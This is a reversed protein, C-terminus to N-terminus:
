NDDASDMNDILSIIQKFQYTKVMQTLKDTDFSEQMSGIMKLLEESNGKKANERFKVLWETSVEAFDSPIIATSDVKTEDRQKLDEYIYVIELYEAMKEFIEEELFPKRVFGDCGAELVQGKNEEFVSATLAIIPTHKKPDDEIRELDRIRRVAEMGDMGLLRIDMWILDPQKLKFTEVAQRGDTAETVRFGVQELLQRLVIRSNEDDEVILIKFAPQDTALGVVRQKSADSFTRPDDIPEVPLEVLFTSGKGPQSKVSISGGMLSCYQQCITLGLGVGKTPQESPLAQVFHGFISKQKDQSIGIGTDEVVFRINIISSKDATRSVPEHHSNITNPKGSNDAAHVRFTIHGKTTFKVANDLLNNLIQHLKSQDTRINEPINPDYDFRLELGKQETRPLTLEELLTLSSKLSFGSKDLTLRGSEIRSIELVQNILSLLYEGSRTLIGLNGKFKEPFGTDRAMLQGTGLIANLPTRLEHGMNALFISKAKNAAEAKEKALELESTREAVQTELHRERRRASQRQWVFGGVVLGALLLLMGFRFWFTRWWPPTVTIKISTGEENWVGDNNSGIVRFVYQGPDLNTYTTFRRTSDVENWDDEFGEMKYRYRNKEPSQYNLAAFKFSIVRDLYSLLLHDTEVISQKLVSDGGIPVPKNSLQFDTIVVPPIYPNDKIHDPYFANFGKPGGFFMQGNRSKYHSSYNFQDSQLGDSADYNKFTETQPNFKSLGQATSLWLNGHEDELIGRVSESPLGDKEGYHLFQGRTRDFKNLGGSNTGIWLANARDKYITVIGNNSLSSPNDPDHQYRRFTETNRDFRNLGGNMTGIWLAGTQDENISLVNNHSLSSPNDPDHQYRRFTETNRDFRNLGGTWTGVWLIGSQDEYISMIGDDSLSHPDDPNHRYHTFTRTEWDFRNLGGGFTGIWIVGARDVFIEYMINSSLSNPDAPDHQYHTFTETKQDFRNLGGANTGLWLAGTLDEYISHVGNYSLSNPDAPNNQYHRFRRRERNFYNIGGGNTGIWLAGTLDEYITYVTDHTLSNPDASDHPYHTFHGTERDFRNLGGGRTGIWLAGARDEYITNINNQNLSNPNAPDHRYNTFIETKRDFQNLGGGFTGIWFGGKRDEFIARVKNHSLSQPDNPDHQYRIFTESEADFRNLGGGETGIWLARARDEYIAFVVNHGLSRPDDPDHRYHTFQKTKPDFRNLGGGDTGIWLMGSRDQYISRIGNHSLSQPDQPDHQFRIFTETERVFKNLGSGWTGIWIDGVRDKYLIRVSNSSLSSPDELDHQYVKFERGDYRNLRNYTGFWMFGKDDQVIGPVNNNSLGHDVTLHDFKISLEKLPSQPFAVQASALLTVLTISAVLLTLFFLRLIPKMKHPGENHNEFDKFAKDM